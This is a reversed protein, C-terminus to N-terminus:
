TRFGKPLVAARGWLPCDTSLERISMYVYMGPHQYTRLGVLFSVLESSHWPRAHNWCCRSAFQWWNKKEVCPLASFSIWAMRVSRNAQKRGRRALSKDTAMYTHTHTYIYIYIHPASLYIYIYIYKVQRQRVACIIFPGAWTVSTLGTLAMHWSITFRKSIHFSTVRIGHLVFKYSLLFSVFASSM